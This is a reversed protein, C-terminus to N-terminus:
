LLCSCPSAPRSAIVCSHVRSEDENKKTDKAPEIWGWFCCCLLMSDSQREHSNDVRHKCKVLSVVVTHPMMKFICRTNLHLLPKTFLQFFSSFCSIQCCKTQTPDCSKMQRKILFHPLLSTRQMHAEACHRYKVVSWACLAVIVLLHHHIQKKEACQYAPQKCMDRM